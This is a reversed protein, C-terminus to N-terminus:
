NEPNSPLGAQGGPGSLEDEVFGPRTALYAGVMVALSSATLMLAPALWGGTAERLVGTLFPGASAVTYGVGQGFSSLGTAGALTRSRLNILVVAMPFSLPGVGSLTVWLWPASMPDVAIMFNGVIFSVLAAVIIPYPRSSRTMLWPGIFNLGLGIVSWWSLMTAAFQEDAGAEVFIQPLFGMVTFSVFSTFGFMMALGVGRRTRWVPVRQGRKEPDTAASAPTRGTLLPLWAVAAVLALLSWSALSVQWGPLGAADAADAIPVALVPSVAQGLQGTVMFVTSMPGLKDPFYERLAVPLAANAVGIALLTLVTGAVLNFTSPGLVRWVQGAATLLMAASLLQPTSLRASLAPLAFATVAFAATPIMGLVGILSSGAGLDDLVRPALPALAVVATRLNLATLLIAALAVVRPTVSRAVTSSM